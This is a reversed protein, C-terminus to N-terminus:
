LYPKPNLAANILTGRADDRNKGVVSPVEVTPPGTSVQLDVATNKQVHTGALPSQSIVVGKEVSASPRHHLRAVLGEDQLKTVALQQQIGAVQPVAVPKSDNLQDQIKTYAFWAAAAAAILLLISLVWPWVPRRRRPPGEYGYYGAPPTRGPP